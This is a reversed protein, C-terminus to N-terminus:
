WYFYTKKASLYLRDNQETNEELQTKIADLLNDLEMVGYYEEDIYVAYYTRATKNAKKKM